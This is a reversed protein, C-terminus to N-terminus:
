PTFLSSSPHPGHFTLHLSDPTLQFSSIASRRHRSLIYRREQVYPRGAFRPTACLILVIRSSTQQTRGREGERSITVM